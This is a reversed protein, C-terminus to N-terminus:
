IGRVCDNLIRLSYKQRSKDTNHSAPKSQKGKPYTGEWGIECIRGETKNQTLQRVWEQFLQLTPLTQSYKTNFFNM